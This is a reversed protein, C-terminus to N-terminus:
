ETFKRCHFNFLKEGSFEGHEIVLGSPPSPWDVCQITEWVYMTITNKIETGGYDLEVHQRAYSDSDDGDEEIPIMHWRIFFANADARASDQRLCGVLVDYLLGMRTGGVQYDQLHPVLAGCAESDGGMAHMRHIVQELKAPPQVPFMRRWSANPHLVSSRRKEDLFWPLQKLNDFSPMNFSDDFGSFRFLPPFVEKLLDNFEPGGQTGPIPRFFLKQQLQPISHHAAAM